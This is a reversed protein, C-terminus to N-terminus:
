KSTFISATLCHLSGAMDLTPSYIFECSFGQQVLLRKTQVIDQQQTLNFRPILLHEGIQIWNVLSAYHKGRSRIPIKIIKTQPLRKEIKNILRQMSAQDAKVSLNWAVAILNPKLIRIHVDAYATIENAFGSFIIWHNIGLPMKYADLQPRSLQNKTLMASTSFALGDWAGVLNGQALYNLPSPTLRNKTIKGFLKDDLPRDMDEVAPNCWRIASEGQIAIPSRDRIWPTDLNATIITFHQPHQQTQIFAQSFSPEQSLLIVGCRSAICGAINELLPTIDCCYHPVMIADPHAYDAVLQENTLM